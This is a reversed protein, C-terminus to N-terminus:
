NMQSSVKASGISTPKIDGSGQQRIAYIPLNGGASGMPSFSLVQPTTVPDSLGSPLQNGFLYGRPLEITQFEMGYKSGVRWNAGNLDEVKYGFLLLRGSGGEDDELGCTGYSRPDYTAFMENVPNALEPATVLSYQRQSINDLLYLRIAQSSGNNVTTELYDGNSDYRELDGYEDILLDNTHKTIRGRSRVAVARGVIVDSEDENEAGRIMENWYYVVTPQRDIQAREYALELFRSANDLVRREEMGRQMQRYGGVSTTGLLGMIAVVVLLEILTFGKSM